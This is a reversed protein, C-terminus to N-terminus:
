YLPLVTNRNGGKKDYLTITPRPPVLSFKSNCESNALWSGPYCLHGAGIGATSANEDTVRFNAMGTGYAMTSSNTAFYFYIVGYNEGSFGGWYSEDPSEYYFQCDNESAFFENVTDIDVDSTFEVVPDEPPYTNYNIYGIANSSDICYGDSYTIPNFSTVGYLQQGNVWAKICSDQASAGNVSSFIIFIFLFISGASIQRISIKM